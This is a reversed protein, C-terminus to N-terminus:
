RILALQSALKVTNSLKRKYSIKEEEEVRLLLVSIKERTNRSLHCIRSIVGNLLAQNRGILAEVGVSAKRLMSSDLRKLEGFM